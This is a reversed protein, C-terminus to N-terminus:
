LINYCLCVVAKQDYKRFVKEIGRNLCLVELIIMEPCIQSKKKSM